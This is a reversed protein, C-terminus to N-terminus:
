EHGWEMELDDMLIVPNGTNVFAISKLLAKRLSTKGTPNAGMLIYASVALCFCINFCNPISSFCMSAPM